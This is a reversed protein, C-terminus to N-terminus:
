SQRNTKAVLGKLGWSWLDKDVQIMETIIKINLDDRVYLHTQKKHTDKAKWWTYRQCVYLMTNLIDEKLVVCLDETRVPKAPCIM